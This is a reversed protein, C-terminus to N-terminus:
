LRKEILKNILHPSELQPWHYADIVELSYHSFLQDLESKSPIELYPDKKSWIFECPLNVKKLNNILVPIEKFFVRYLEIANLVNPECYNEEDYIHNLKLAKKQISKWHRQIVKQPLNPIQFLFIYWSKKLQKLNKKRFFMQEISPANIMIVKNFSVKITPALQAMKAAVPGGLDHAVITVEDLQYDQLLALYAKALHALKPVKQNDLIGPAFPALLTFGKKHEKFYEFQNRWATPDDPFGHLFMIAKNSSENVSTGLKELFHVTFQQYIFSKNQM